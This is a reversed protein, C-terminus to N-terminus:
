RGSAMLDTEVHALAANISPVMDLAFARLTETPPESHEDYPTALIIATGSDGRNSLRQWALMAKALYPNIVDHGAIRFWDWVLLRQSPSRLRTQRVAFTAPGLAADVRSEGVNNWLPHKQVVMINWSSVLQSGPHQHHYYGLHLAVVRDGKRYVQFLTASAPDYHPRWDTLPERDAVWGGAPAPVALALTPPGSTDDRDLYGAYAPWAGTIAVAAATHWALSLRRPAVPRPRAGGSVASIATDPDRWFSGVWFLLLMVVGFFVWGYIFHDIGHALQNNSLHAIMVILYARFGNAIIPVVISMLAFLLRKWTRRYSLYAFLVGVTVSAILYRVGSCGEVISWNGSPITFFLGERFVPIGSLQLATITFDATWEMLPPILVEGMPVGLVLFGLPFMIAKAVERGLIAIVTAWITAVFALQRIVLVEGAYGVLWVAGACALLVLGLADPAPALKALAHRRQWILVLVIPVILFGHAFTESREWIAVISEATTWHIALVAILAVIVLPLGLRWSPEIAANRSQAALTGIRGEAQTSM